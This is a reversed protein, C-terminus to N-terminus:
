EQITTLSTHPHHASLKLAQVQLNLLEIQKEKEEAEIQLKKMKRHYFDAIGEEDGSKGEHSLHSAASNSFNSSASHHSNVSTPSM